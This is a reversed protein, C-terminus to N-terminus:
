RFLTSQLDTEKNTVLGFDIKNNGNILELEPTGIVAKIGESNNSGNNM